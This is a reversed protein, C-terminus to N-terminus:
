ADLTWCPEGLEQCKGCLEQPHPKRMDITSDEEGQQLRTQRWPYRNLRACVADPAALTTLARRRGDVVCHQM